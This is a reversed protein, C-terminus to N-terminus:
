RNENSLKKLKQQLDSLRWRAIRGLIGKPHQNAYTQLTKIQDQLQGHEWSHFLQRENMEFGQWHARGPGKKTHHRNRM